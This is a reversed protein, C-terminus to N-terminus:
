HKPLSIMWKQADILSQPNAAAINLWIALAKYPHYGMMDIFLDVFLSLEAQTKFQKLLIHVKEYNRGINFDPSKPNLYGKMKHIDVAMLPAKAILQMRKFDPIDNSKWFNRDYVTKSLDSNNASVQTNFERNSKVSNRVWDIFRGPAAIVDTAVGVVGKVSNAAGGFLGFLKKAIFLFFLGALVWLIYVPKFEFAKPRNRTINRNRAM